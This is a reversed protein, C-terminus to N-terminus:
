LVGHQLPFVTDKGALWRFLGSAFQLYREGVEIASTRTVPLRIRRRGWDVLGGCWHPALDSTFAATRRQPDGHVALLPHAQPELQLGRHSALIRHAELLVQSRPALRVRNLGCVAPPPQFALERLVPHAVGTTTVIAGGPFHVRDDYPLCRVPLAEDIPSGRWRGSPGAFSGWGGIMLLGSGQEAQRVIARQSALPADQQAFDSFIFADFRRALSRLSLRTSAPVHVVDARLSRLIGLVYNASSGPTEGAFLIRM